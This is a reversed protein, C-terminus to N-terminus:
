TPGRPHLTAIINKCYFMSEAALYGEAMSGEPRARNRIYGKLVQMYRELWYMWRCHVPGCLEVEEVLHVLLHIQCDFFSPPLAYELKIMLEAVCVKIRPIEITYVEKQYVWRLLIGLDQLANQLDDSALGMIAVPIIHHLLRHYDHTKLFRPWKHSDEPAFAKRLNAGYGTYMYSYICCAIMLMTNRLSQFVNGDEELECGEIDLFCREFMWGFHIHENTSIHKIFKGTPFRM